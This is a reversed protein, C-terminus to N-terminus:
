GGLSLTQDLVRLYAPFDFEPIRALVSDPFHGEYLPFWGGPPSPNLCVAGLGAARYAEIREQVHGPSGALTVADAMDDGILGLAGELDGATVRVQLERVEDGFGAAAFSREYEPSSGGATGFMM